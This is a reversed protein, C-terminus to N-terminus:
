YNEDIVKQFRLKLDTFHEHNFKLYRMCNAIAKQDTIVAKLKKIHIKNEILAQFIDIGGAEINIAEINQGNTFFNNNFHPDIFDNFQGRLCIYKLTKM